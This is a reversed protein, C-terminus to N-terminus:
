TRRKEEHRGTGPLMEGPLVGSSPPCFVAPILIGTIGGMVYVKSIHNQKNKQGKKHSRGPCWKSCWKNIHNSDARREESGRSIKGIDRRRFRVGFGTGRSVTVICM